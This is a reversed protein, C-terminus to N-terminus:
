FDSDIARRDRFNSLRLFLGKPSSVCKDSRLSGVLDSRVECDAGPSGIPNPQGNTDVWEVRSPTGPIYAM